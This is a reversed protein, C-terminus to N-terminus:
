NYNENSQTNRVVFRGDHTITLWDPIQGCMKTLNERMGTCKNLMDNISEFGNGRAFGNTLKVEVVGNIWHRFIQTHGNFDAEYLKYHETTEILRKM